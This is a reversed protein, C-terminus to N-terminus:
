RLEVLQWLASIIAIVVPTIGHFVGVVQPCRETRMGDMRHRRRDTDVSSHLLRGRGAARGDM